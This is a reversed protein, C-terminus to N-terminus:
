EGRATGPWPGMGDGRYGRVDEASPPIQARAEALAERRDREAELRNLEPNLVAIERDLARKESASLNPDLARTTLSRMERAKASAARRADNLQTELRNM